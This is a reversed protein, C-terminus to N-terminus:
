NRTKSRGIYLNIGRVAGEGSSVGMPRWVLCGRVDVEIMIPDEDDDDDDKVVKRGGKGRM